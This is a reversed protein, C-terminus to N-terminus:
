YCSDRRQYRQLYRSNIWGYERERTNEVEWYSGPGKTLLDFRYGRYVKKVEEYNNNCRNPNCDLMPIKDSNVEACWRAVASTSAFSILAGTITVLVFSKSPLRYRFM